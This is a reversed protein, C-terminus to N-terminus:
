SDKPFVEKGFMEISSMVKEHPITETQTIMMVQDVGIEEYMQIAKVCSDPDGAIIVGRDALTNADLQAIAARAAGPGSDLSIGVEAAQAQHAGDSQRLWRGFDAQLHDPVGGWADLLEEYAGVRGAIYPKDPGFFTKMSDTALERAEDNDSGCYAHVNNAWHNTVFAGVPKANKVSERYTKVHQELVSAAYSASSLVGIGREGAPPLERDSHVGFVHTLHPKQFTEAVGEAVARELIEGGPSSTRSGSRHSCRSPSRGCQVHTGPTWGWDPQEYANSRGTGSSVRGNTLQDVMAVREAIRVPHAHASHVRRLRDQHKETRQSLAGFMVEPCPSGSFGTLFHHEVFWLNDFGMQDALECQDLTERYLTNWDIETGQFPRQM